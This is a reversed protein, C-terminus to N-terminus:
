QCTLRTAWVGGWLPYIAFLLWSRNIHEKVIRNKRKKKRCCAEDAHKHLFGEYPAVNTYSPLYSLKGVIM